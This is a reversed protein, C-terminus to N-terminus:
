VRTGRLTLLSVGLSHPLTARWVLSVVSEDLDVHVTDLALPAQLLEGSATLCAGEIALGPLQARIGPGPHFGTMWLTEDGELHPDFIWDPHACQFFRADFDAPYIPHPSADFAARWAADYTGAFQYRNPWWRATPGLGAVRIPKDIARLPDDAYQIQAAPYRVGRDLSTGELWGRGAPNPAFTRGSGLNRGGYALDYGLPLRDVKAPESLHWDRAISWQWHRPGTLHLRKARDGARTRLGMECWWEACPESRPPIAHGTVLVDTAPKIVVVDGARTVAGKEPADPCTYHDALSIEAPEAIVKLPGDALRLNVRVVVVDCFLNDAGLKCFALHRFGTANQVTRLHM